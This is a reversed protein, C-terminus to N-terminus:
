KAFRVIKHEDNYMYNKHAAKYLISGIYAICLRSDSSPSGRGGPWSVGGVDGGVALCVKVLILVEM